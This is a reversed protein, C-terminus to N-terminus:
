LFSMLGSPGSLHTPLGKLDEPPLGKILRKVVDRSKTFTLHEFDPSSNGISLGEEFTGGAWDILYLSLKDMIAASLFDNFGALDSIFRVIEMKPFPSYLGVIHVLKGIVIAGKPVGKGHTESLPALRYGNDYHACLKHGKTNLSVELKDAVHHNALYHLLHKLDNLLTIHKDIKFDKWMGKSLSMSLLVAMLERTLSIANLKDEKLRIRYYTTKRYGKDNDKFTTMKFNPLMSIDNTKFGDDISEVEFHSELIREMAYNSAASDLWESVSRVNVLGSEGILTGKGLAKDFLLRESVNLVTFLEKIRMSVDSGPVYDM